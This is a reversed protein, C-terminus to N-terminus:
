NELTRPMRVKQRIDEGFAGCAALFMAGVKGIASGAAAEMDDSFGAYSVWLRVYTAAEPIEPIERPDDDYGLLFIYFAANPYRAVADRFAVARARAQAETLRNRAGIPLCVLMMDSATGDSLSALDLKPLGDHLRRMDNVVPQRAIDPDERM